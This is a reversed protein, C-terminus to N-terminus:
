QPQGSGRLWGAGAEGAGKLYALAWTLHTHAATPMPLFPYAVVTGGGWGLQDQGEQVKMLAGLRGPQSIHLVWLGQAQSGREAAEVWCDGITSSAPFPIPSPPLVAFHGM